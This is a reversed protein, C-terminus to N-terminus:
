ARQRDAPLLAFDRCLREITHATAEPHEFPFLHSGDVHVVRLHRRSEALGVQRDVLSARGAILAAPCHLERAAAGFHHPMTTYIRAEVEPAFRLSRGHADAQTGHRVYDRLCAPDFRRFLPKTRFYRLAEAESAFYRRRARTRAAPTIRDMLWTGRFLRLVGAALGGFLPADLLIVARFLAPERVAALLTLYGGLSHGVAIAPPRHRARLDARLEEVLHPWGQTVPFRADHGVMPLWAVDFGTSLCELLTHYTEGPFGNAHAFYLFPRSADSAPSVPM